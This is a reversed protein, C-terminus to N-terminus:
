KIKEDIDKNLRKYSFKLKKIDCGLGIKCINTKLRKKVKRPLRPKKVFLRMLKETEKKTMKLDFSLQIDEDPVWASPKHPPCGDLELGSVSSAIGWCTNNGLIIGKEM